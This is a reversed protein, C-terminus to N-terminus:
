GADGSVETSSGTIPPIVLDPINIEVSSLSTSIINTDVEEIINTTTSAENDVSATVVIDLSTASSTANNDVSSNPTSSASLGDGNKIIEEKSDRSTPKTQVLAKTEGTQEPEPLKEPLEQPMSGLRIASKTDFDYGVTTIDGNGNVQDFVLVFRPNEAIGFDDLGEIYEVKNTDTDYVAVKWGEAFQTQWVIYGGRVNPAIDHMDNNTLQLTKNGDNMMIEWNNGIWAQWLTIDGDAVPEMNNYNTDTMIVSTNKKLDYSVIQYRDNIQTHWVVRNSDADYYPSNDDVTNHTLQVETGETRVFIEMDGDQDPAAFVGDKLFPATEEAENCYYAGNGVAVCDQKSFQYRNADSIHVPEEEPALLLDDSTTASDDDDNLVTEENSSDFETNTELDITNIGSDDVVAEGNDETNSSETSTAQNSASTTTTTSNNNTTTSAISDSVISSNSTTAASVNSKIESESSTASSTEAVQHESVSSSTTSVVVDVADSDDDLLSTETTETKTTDSEAVEGPEDTIVEVSSTDTVVKSNNEAVIIPEVEVVEPVNVTEANDVEEEAFVREIPQLLFSFILSLVVM